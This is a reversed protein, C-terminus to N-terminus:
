STQPVRRPPIPLIVRLTTGKAPESQVEIRGKHQEVIKKVIALGLGSGTKNRVSQLPLFIKEKEEDALGPANDSVTLEVGEEKARLRTEVTVIGTNEDVIDIANLILNVAMQHIGDSDLEIVPIKQDIRIHLKTEKQKLHMQLSEVAAQITRNFECPGLELRREKSFDLMDLTFKRIRELNPRLIKWSRKVRHIQDTRLGFDLVEIAGSVLQLINKVSHSINLVVQGATILCQNRDKQRQLNVVEIALGLWGAIFDLLDLDQKAWKDAAASSSDLYIVGLVGDPASGAKIPACMASKINFRQFSPDACFEENKMVDQILVAQGTQMVGDIVARSETGPCNGPIALASEAAESVKENGQCASAANKLEGSENDRLFIYAHDAHFHRSVLDITNQIAADHNDSTLDMLTLGNLLGLISDPNLVGFGIYPSQSGNGFVSDRTQDPEWKNGM